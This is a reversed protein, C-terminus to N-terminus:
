CPHIFLGKQTHDTEEVRPVDQTLEPCRELKCYIVMTTTKKCGVRLRQREVLDVVLRAGGVAGDVAAADGVSERFFQELFGECVETGNLLDSDELVLSVCKDPLDGNM